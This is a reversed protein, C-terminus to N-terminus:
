PICCPHVTPDRLWVAEGLAPPERDDPAGVVVGVSALVKQMRAPCHDLCDSVRRTAVPDAPGDLPKRLEESASMEEVHRAAIPNQPSSNTIAHEPSGDTSIGPHCAEGWSRNSKAEVFPQLRLDGEISNATVVEHQLLNVRNRHARASRTGEAPAIPPQGM